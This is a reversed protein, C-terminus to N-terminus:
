ASPACRPTTISGRPPLASLKPGGQITLDDSVDVFHGPDREGDHAPGSGRWRDPERALEGVQWVADDSKLFDPLEPPLNKIALVGILRHGTAGWALAHTPALALALVSAAALLHTNSRSM